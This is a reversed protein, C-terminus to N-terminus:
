LYQKFGPDGAYAAPISDVERSDEVVIVVHKAQVCLM